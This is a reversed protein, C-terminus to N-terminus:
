KETSPADTPQRRRRSQFPMIVPQKLAYEEFQSEYDSWGQTSRPATYYPRRGQSQMRLFHHRQHETRHNECYRPYINHDPYVTFTYRRACGDLACTMTQVQPKSEPTDIVLNCEEAKPIEKPVYREARSKRTRHEPCYLSTPSGEFKGGCGPHKCTRTERRVRSPSNSHLIMKPREKRQRTPRSIM